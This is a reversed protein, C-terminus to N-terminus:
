RRSRVIPALPHVGGSISPYGPTRALRGDAGWSAFGVPKCYEFRSGACGCSAGPGVRARGALPLGPRSGRPPCFKEFLKAVRPGRRRRPASHPCPRQCALCACSRFSGPGPKGHALGNQCYACRSRKPSLGPRAKVEFRGRSRVAAIADVYQRTEVSHRFAKGPTTPCPAKRGQLRAHPPHRLCHRRIAGPYSRQACPNRKAKKAIHIAVVTM